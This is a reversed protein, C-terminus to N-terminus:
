DELLLASAMLLSFGVMARTWPDTLSVPAFLFSTAWGAVAVITLLTKAKM